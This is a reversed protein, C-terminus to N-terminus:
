GMEVCCSGGSRYRGEGEGGEEEVEGIMWSPVRKKASGDDGTVELMDRIGEGLELMMLESDRFIAAMKMERGASVVDDGVMEEAGHRTTTTTVSAVFSVSYSLM